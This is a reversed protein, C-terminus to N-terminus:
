YQRHNQHPYSNLSDMTIVSEKKVKGTITFQHTQTITEQAFATTGWLLFLYLLKKM